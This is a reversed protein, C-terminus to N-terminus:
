WVHFACPVCKVCLVALRCVCVLSYSVCAALTQVWGLRLFWLCVCDWCVEVAQQSAVRYGRCFVLVHCGRTCAAQECMACGLRVGGYLGGM